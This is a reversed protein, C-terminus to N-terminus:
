AGIVTRTSRRVRGMWAANPAAARLAAPPMVTRSVVLGDGVKRRIEAAL